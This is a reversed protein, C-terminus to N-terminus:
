LCLGDDSLGRRCYAREELETVFWGGDGHEMHVRLDAGAMSDDKFGWQMILGVAQSDDERQIKTSHDSVEDGMRFEADLASLLAQPSDALDDGGRALSEPIQRRSDRWPTVDPEHGMESEEARKQMEELRKENELKEDTGDDGLDVSPAGEAEAAAEDDGSAEEGEVPEDDQAGEELAGEAEAEEQAVEQSEGNEQDQSTSCGWALVLALCVLCILAKTSRM